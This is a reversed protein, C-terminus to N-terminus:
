APAIHPWLRPQFPKRQSPCCYVRMKRGDQAFMISTPPRLLLSWTVPKILLEPKPGPCAKIQDAPVRVSRPVGGPVDYAARFAMLLRPSTTPNALVPGGGWFDRKTM